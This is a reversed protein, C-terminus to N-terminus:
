PSDGYVVPWEFTALFIFLSVLIDELAALFDWDIYVMPTTLELGM